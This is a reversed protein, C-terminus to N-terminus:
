KVIPWSSRYCVDLKINQYFSLSFYQSSLPHWCEIGRPHFGNEFFRYLTAVNLWMAIFVRCWFHFCKPFHLFLYKHFPSPHRPLLPSREFDFFSPQIWFYHMGASGTMFYLLIAPCTDPRPVAPSIKRFTAKRIQCDSASYLPGHDRSAATASISVGATGTVFNSSSFSSSSSTFLSLQDIILLTSLYFSDSLFPSVSSSSACSFLESRTLSKLSISSSHVFTM